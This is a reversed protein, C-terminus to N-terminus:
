KTIELDIQQSYIDVEKIRVSLKDGLFYGKGSSSGILSKSTNEFVFYDNKPLNKVHCLGEIGLEQLLIFLGFNTIGSITGEFHKQINKMALECKLTNMAHREAKEAIREQHSSEESILEIQKEDFPYDEKELKIKKLNSIKIIDKRYKNLIAKIARHVMLDPYRRIPSTFHTYSPYALAFHESVKRQYTALNLSQLIQMNIIDKDNRNRSIKLLEFYDEVSGEPRLKLNIRRSSIFKQLQNINLLDPKPHTRYISSVSSAQLIKAACINALLMCEEIVQHATNRKVEKFRKLEGNKISPLFDPVELELAKRLTKNKKLLIYIKNITQLSNSLEEPYENTEFFKNAKEYTLRAKSEIIGQFFSGDILSGERDIEVKCVLCAKEENPRLSCTKNSIEEPLMPVVKNSFYVSTGRKRAEIDIFSNSTVYHSVDAIAVFLILNGNRQEEAYVADDFDKANQGDITVFSLKTLDIHEKLPVDEARKLKKLENIINKSWKDRIKFKSIAIKNARNELNSNDLVEQVFGKARSDKKSYHTIKIIVLDNSKISKPLKGQIDVFNYRGMDVPFSAYRNGFKELKGIFTETNNEIVKEISAWGRHSIVCKIKDGIFAKKVEKFAIKYSLNLNDNKVRFSGKKTQELFGIFSKHKFNNRRLKSKKQKNKYGM